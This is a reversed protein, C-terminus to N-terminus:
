GAWRKEARNVLQNLRLSTSEGRGIRLSEWFYQHTQRIGLRGTGELMSVGTPEPVIIAVIKDSVTKRWAGPGCKQPAGKLTDKELGGRVTINSLRAWPVGLVM